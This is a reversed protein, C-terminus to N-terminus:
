ASSFRLTTASASRWGPVRTGNARSSGLTLPPRSAVSASAAPARPILSCGRPSLKRRSWGFTAGIKAAAASASAGTKIWAPEPTPEKPGVRVSSAAPLRRQGIMRAWAPM